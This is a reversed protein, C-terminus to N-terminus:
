FILANIVFINWQYKATHRERKEREPCRFRALLYLGRVRAWRATSRYGGDFNFPASTVISRAWTTADRCSPCARNIGQLMNVARHSFPLLYTIQLFGNGCWYAGGGWQGWGGPIDIHGNNIYISVYVISTIPSSGVFTNWHLIMVLSQMLFMYVM